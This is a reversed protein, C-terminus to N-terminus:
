GALVRFPIFGASRGISCGVFNSSTMLRLVALASPRVTGGVSSARASSTVSYRPEKSRHKLRTTASKPCAAIDSKLGSHSGFRVDGIRVERPGQGTRKLAAYLEPPICFMQCFAAVTLATATDPRPERANM